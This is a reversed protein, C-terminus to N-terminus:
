PGPTYAIRRAQGGGAFTTYYHDKTGSPGFTMAIPGGGGVTAFLHQGVVNGDNAFKLEFIKNCIFDAFLYSDDYENPWSGDNPVFAGGTISECNTKKHNYEHIPGTYRSGDCTVRGRREPNDHCGECLNWGYDAGSQARDIEEM